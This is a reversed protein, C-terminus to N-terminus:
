TRCRDYRRLLDGVDHLFRRRRYGNLRHGQHLTRGRLRQQKKRSRVALAAIALPSRSTRQFKQLRQELVALDHLKALRSELKALREAYCYIRDSWLAQLPKLQGCLDKVRKRWEHFNVASPHRKATRMAHRASFLSDKFGRVLIAPPRAWINRLCAQNVAGLEVAIVKVLEKIRRSREAHDRQSVLTRRILPLTRREARDPSGIVLRDFTDVLVAADRCTSLERGLQTLRRGTARDARSSDARVLRLLSRTAKVQQRARHLRFRMAQAPSGGTAGYSADSDSNMQICPRIHGKIMPRPSASPLRIAPPIARM